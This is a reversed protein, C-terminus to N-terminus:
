GTIPRVDWIWVGDIWTPQIGTLKTVTERLAADRKPPKTGPKRPAPALVLVGARWFKLDEVAKARDSDTIVPVAGYAAADKFKESTNRVPAEWFAKPNTPSTPGLFYGGPMKFGIGTVASWQMGEMDLNHALPVSVLTHGNAVYPRWEGSSIFKPVPRDIAPLPTPAIPLLAAVVAGWWALRVPFGSDRWRVAVKEAEACGLVLLVGVVPILGLAYRSPTALDFPPFKGLIRLPGPIGTSKGNFMITPGVALSTFMVGTALLAWVAARRRLWVVILLILVLLPFGFFANEETPSISVHQAAHVDGALSESSFTVLSAVDAVFRDLTFPLGRYRGPGLFQVYLPYALLVGATVAAVGLGTSFPRIGGRVESWRQAAYVVIFTACGLATLFLIEENIFAQYTILLGLIVGNRVVRGPERLSIIRWVIFPLVFFSVLNPHGGAQSVMGPAFGLFAGGVWAAFRSEVVHRALVRYWAAATLALGLVVALAFSVQPGFLLTVPTLPIAVGLFSTNSMLNVQYPVNIVDTILPNHGHTVAWAAHALFWEFQYHDTKNTSLVRDPPNVWLRGTVYIAAVLYTGYAAITWARAPLRHLYGLLGSRAAKPERSPADTGPAAGEEPRPLTQTKASDVV